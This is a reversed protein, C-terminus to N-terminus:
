MTPDMRLATHYHHSALLGCPQRTPSTLRVADGSQEPAHLSNSGKRRRASDTRVHQAARVPRVGPIASQLQQDESGVKDEAELQLELLANNVGYSGGSHSIGAQLVVGKIM